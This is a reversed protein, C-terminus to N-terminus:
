VAREMVHEALTIGTAVNPTPVLLAALMTRSDLGMVPPHLIRARAAAQPAVPASVIMMISSVMAVNQSIHVQMAAQVRFAPAPMTPIKERAFGISTPIWGVAPTSATNVRKARQRIPISHATVLMSFFITKPAPPTKVLYVSIIILQM